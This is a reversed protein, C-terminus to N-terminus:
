STLADKAGIITCGIGIVLARLAGIFAFGIGAVGCMAAAIAGYGDRGHPRHQQHPRGPPHPPQHGNVEYAYTYNHGGYNTVATLRNAGDYSYIPRAGGLNDLSWQILTKTARRM